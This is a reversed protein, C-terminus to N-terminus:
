GGQGKGQPSLMFKRLKPNILPIDKRTITSATSFFSAKSKKNNNNNNNNNSNNQKSQKKNTM